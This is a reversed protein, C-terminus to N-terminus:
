DDQSEKTAHNLVNVLLMIIVFFSDTHGGLHWIYDITTLTNVIMGWIFLGVVILFIVGLTMASAAVDYDDKYEDHYTLLEKLKM